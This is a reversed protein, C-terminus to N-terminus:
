RPSADSEPPASSIEAALRDLRQKIALKELEKEAVSEELVEAPTALDRLRKILKPVAESPLIVFSDGEENWSAQQRIVVNGKPNLYVAIASVSPILVCEDDENWDFDESM